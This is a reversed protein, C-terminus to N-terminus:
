HGTKIEQDWAEIKIRKWTNNKVCIYLYDTDWNIEGKEGKSDSKQPVPSKGLTVSGFKGNIKIYGGDVTFNSSHTKIECVDNDYPFEMRTFLQNKFKGDPSMTTEISLHKHDASAPNNARDHSVIATKNKGAEDLWSIAPKAREATWQLRILDSLHGEHAIWRQNTSLTIRKNEPLKLNISRNSLNLYTLVILLIINAAILLKPM